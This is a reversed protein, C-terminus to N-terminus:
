LSMIMWIIILLIFFLELWYATRIGTATSVDDSIGQITNSVEKELAELQFKKAAATYIKGLYSDYAFTASLRLGKLLGSIENKLDIIGPLPSMSPPLFARPLSYIKRGKISDRANTLLIGFVMLKLRQINALDITALIDWTMNSTNILLARDWDVIVADDNTYTFTASTADEQEQAGVDRWGRWGRLVGTLLSKKELLQNINIKPKIKEIIVYMYDEVPAPAGGLTYRSHIASKIYNLVKKYMSDMWEEFMIENEKAIVWEEEIMSLNVLNDMTLNNFPINVEITLAGEKRIKAYIGAYYQKEGFTIRTPSLRLELDPYPRAYRPALARKTERERLFRVHRSEKIKNIDIKGQVDRARTIILRGTYKVM